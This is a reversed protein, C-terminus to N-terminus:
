LSDMLDLLDDNDGGGEKSEVGGKDDGRSSSSSSSSTGKGGGGGGGRPKNDSESATKSEEEDDNFGLSAMMSSLTNPNRQSQQQGNQQPRGTGKTSNIAGFMQLSSGGGGGPIGRENIASALIGGSGEDDGFLDVIEVDSSSSSSSSSSNNGLLSALLNVGAVSSSESGGRMDSMSSQTQAESSLPSLKSESVEARKRRVSSTSSPSNIVSSTSIRDRGEEEDDDEQKGQDEDNNDNKKSSGDKEKEKEKAMMLDRKREKLYLNAGLKSPTSSADVPGESIPLAPLFITPFDGSVKQSVPVTTAGVGGVGGGGSSGSSSAGVGAVIKGTAGDFYRVTGPVEHGRPVPGALPLVIVGDARQTNEELFLSVKVDRDQFFRLLNQKLNYLEGLSMRSYIEMCRRTADALLAVLGDDGTAIDRMGSLHTQSIKLLSPPDPSALLQLKVGMAMLDFLKDMSQKNLRMVSTHAIKEFVLRTARVSYAERPRFLEEIFSPQLLSALVVGLIKRTRSEEISQARLRQQLIYLMEAGLNIILFPMTSLAGSPLRPSSPSLQSM